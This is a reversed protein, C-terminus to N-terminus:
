CPSWSTAQFPSGMHRRHHLGSRWLPHPHHRRGACSLVRARSSGHHVGAGRYFHGDAVRAVAGDVTYGAERLENAILHASLKQGPRVERPAAYIKATNAFLPQKLREDVIRASLQLLLLHLGLLWHNRRALVAAIVGRVLWSSWSLRPRSLKRIQDEAAQSKLAM